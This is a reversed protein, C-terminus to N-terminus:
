RIVRGFEELQARWSALRKVATPWPAVVRCVTPLRHFINEPEGVVLVPKGLGIAYGTEIHRGGGGECGVYASTFLVLADSSQLDWLDQQAHAAVQDDTLAPAAGETDSNIDHTENLWSSTVAFSSAELDTAFTRILQRAGYPAALYVRM